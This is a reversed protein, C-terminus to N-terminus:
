LSTKNWEEQAVESYIEEVENVEEKVTDLILNIRNVKKFLSYKNWKCSKLSTLEWM